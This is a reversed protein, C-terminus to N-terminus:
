TVVRVGSGGWGPVGMVYQGTRREKHPLSYTVYNNVDGTDGEGLATFCDLSVKGAPSDNYHIM